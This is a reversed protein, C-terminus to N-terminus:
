PRVKGPQVTYAKIYFRVFLYILVLLYSGAVVLPFAEGDGLCRIMTSNDNRRYQHGQTQSFVSVSESPAGAPFVGENMSAPAKYTVFLYFSSFLLGVIFQVIQIITLARKLPKSVSIGLTQLTFYSYMLTHVFANLTAGPPAMPSEYRLGVWGILIVGAHHFTQLTSSKKGRSLIIFTDVVEYFKSLYFIWYIYIVGDRSGDMRPKLIRYERQDFRCLFEVLHLSSATGLEPRALLWHYYVTYLMGCLSWASFLALAANHLTMMQRYVFTRSISWPKYNRGANFRNLLLVSTVYVAAFTFVFNASMSLDFIAPNAKWPYFIKGLPIKRIELPIRITPNRPVRFTRLPPLDLRVSSSNVFDM